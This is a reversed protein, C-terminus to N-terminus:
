PKKPAAPAKMSDAKASDAVPPAAKWQSISKGGRGLRQVYATVQWREEPTLQSAHSGMNGKGYTIVHYIHGDSLLGKAYRDSYKPPVAGYKETEVLKGNAEGTTGHCYICNLEYVRQGKAEFADTVEYPNKWFATALSDGVADNAYPFPIFGRPISGEPALMNAMVITDKLWVGNVYISDGTRAGNTEYSQSRYMDPFYEFGPSDPNEKICSTLLTAVTGIALLTYTTKKM